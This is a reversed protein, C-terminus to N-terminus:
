RVIETLEGPQCKAIDDGPGSEVVAREAHEYETDLMWSLIGTCVSKAKEDTIIPSVKAHLTALGGVYADSVAVVAATEGLNERAWRRFGGDAPASAKPAEATQVTSAATQARAAPDDSGCGATAATLTGLLIATRRM